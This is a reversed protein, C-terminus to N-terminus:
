KNLRICRDADDLLNEVLCRHAEVYIIYRHLMYVYIYIFPLAGTLRLM